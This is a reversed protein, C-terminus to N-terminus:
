WGGEVLYAGGDGGNANRAGVLFDDFGDANTDGALAIASGAQDAGSGMLRWVRAGSPDITGSVPGLVLLAKGGGGESLVGVLLDGLGDRDYDGRADVAFGVAETASGVLTGDADSLSMSGPPSHVVYTRGINGAADAIWTAPAGVVIDPIGDGSLDTGGSVTMGAFSDHEGSLIADADALDRDAAVPGLVVYARGDNDTGGNPPSGIVLDLVGDGDVDGPTMCSEGADGYEIASELEIQSSDLVTMGIPNADIVYAGGAREAVNSKREAGLLLDDVGDGDQDGVIDIGRGLADAAQGVIIADADGLAEDGSIPGHLLYVAGRDESDICEGCSQSGIAVDDYGDRDLDGLSASFYSGSSNTEGILIADSDALEYDSAGPFGAARLPGHVLYTCGEVAARTCTPAGIMFDDYGDGNVDGARSLWQGTYASMAEGVLFTAVEDLLNDCADVITDCDNDVGDICIENAGPHVDPNSDDCDRDVAYGDSDADVPVDTDTDTDTDTDADADTGSDPADERSDAHRQTCATALGVCVCGVVAKLVM